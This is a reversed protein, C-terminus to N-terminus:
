PNKFRMIGIVLANLPTLSAGYGKKDIYCMYQYDEGRIIQVDHQLQFELVEDLNFLTKTIENEIQFHDAM